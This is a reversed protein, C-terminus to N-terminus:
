IINVEAELRIGFRDEVSKRIRNSLQVIEGGSAGGYNVLVLAQHKHVGCDGERFGKWGCRDILWAAPVKISGDTQPYSPMGPWQALLTEHQSAPIVPNKFFSGANGIKAPDPLKSSRIECIVQSLDRITWNGSSRKELEQRVNGYSLNLKPKKSLRLTVRTVLFQGKLSRKFVSDRYGFECDSADFNRIEGTKLNHAELSDFVDKLEVGYAGINQIPAAGVTGPILSLNEIGGWGNDVCHLVFSHWNEGGGCTVWIHEPSERQIEFGSICNRVVLGDFDQTFLLNSGGGLLLIPIGSAYHSFFFASAAAEDEIEAYWRARVDIGFTNFPLLSFNERIRVM